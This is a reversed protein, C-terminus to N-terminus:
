LESNSPHSLMYAMRLSKKGNEFGAMFASSM